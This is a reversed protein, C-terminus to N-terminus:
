HVARRAARQGGRRRPPLPTGAGPAHRRLRRRARHRHHQLAPVPRKAPRGGFVVCAAVTAEGLTHSIDFCELRTPPEDLDLLTTLAQWRQQQNSRSALRMALAQRANADALEVLRAREGRVNARIDVKRGATEGLVLSLLTPEAIAHSLLIEAPAVRELYYQPLFASLVEGPEANAPLNPFYARSGQSVGGRFSILFVCALGQEVRCALVDADGSAANVYHRAQIQQLLAIQDRLRAAQEFQLAASAAEMRAVLTDILEGSRGELFLTALEVSRGYEQEDIYGVCPATCRKIQYQLCPRTRNRFVSDHCNRLQFLKHLLDLAERVAGASPYPGFYRGGSRAGRHFGIRPFADGSLHIYPPSKDDRLQINYRPRLSKILQNELLLAEGETRTLTVEIRSIQSIMSALRPDLRPRSFYSGVRRRLSGAKGVYLVDGEAGLMRYVGPKNPLSRLFAAIEERTGLREGPLPPVTGPETAAM